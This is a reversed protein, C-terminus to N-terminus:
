SPLKTNRTQRKVPYPQKHLGCGQKRATPPRFEQLVVGWSVNVRNWMADNTCASFDKRLSPLPLYFVTSIGVLALILALPFVTFPEMGDM